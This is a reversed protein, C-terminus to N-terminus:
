PLQHKFRGSNTLTSEVARFHARCVTRPRSKKCINVRPFPGFLSRFLAAYGDLLAGRTTTKPAKNLPRPSITQCHQCLHFSPMKLIAISTLVNDLIAYSPDLFTLCHKALLRHSEPLLKPGKQVSPGVKCSCFAGPGNTLCKDPGHLIKGLVHTQGHQSPALNPPEPFHLGFQGRIPFCGWISEIRSTDGSRSM